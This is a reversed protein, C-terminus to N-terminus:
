GSIWIIEISSNQGATLDTTVNSSSNLVAAAGAIADSGGELYCYWFSEAGSAGNPLVVCALPYGNVANGAASGAIHPVLVVQTAGPATVWVTVTILYWGSYGAPPSWNSEGADWGSYPDEIINDYAIATTTGASPLTTATTAQTARFVVKQQFFAAPSVWLSQLDSQQPGFGAIFDPVSPAPTTM